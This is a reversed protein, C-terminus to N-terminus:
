WVIALSACIGLGIQVGKLLNKGFEKMNKPHDALTSRLPM